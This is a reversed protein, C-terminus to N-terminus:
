ESPIVLRYRCGLLRPEDRDKELTEIVSGSLEGERGDESLMWEFPRQSAPDMPVPLDLIELSRPLAGGHHSSWDRISEIIRLIAIRQDLLVFYGMGSPWYSFDLCMGLLPEDKQSVRWSRLMANARPIALHPELSMSNELTHFEEILGWLYRIGVEADSMSKMSAVREPVIRHLNKRATETWADWLEMGEPTGWRPADNNQGQLWGFIESALEEWDEKSEFSDMRGLGPITRVWMQSEMQTTEAMNIFPRPINALDWYYNSAQPHQILEEIADLAMSAQAASVLRTVMLPTERVHRAMGWSYRIWEEAQPIDGEIISARGFAIMARVYSRTEQADPLLIGAWPEEQFPYNWGARSRNVFRRMENRDICQLGRIEAASLDELARDDYSNMSIQRLAQLRSTAESNMRLFIAAGEGEILEDSRPFFRNNRDPVEARPRLHLERTGIRTGPEMRTLGLTIPPNGAQGQVTSVLAQSLFWVFGLAVWYRSARHKRHANVIRSRDSSILSAAVWRTIIRILRNILVLDVRKSNQGNRFRGSRVHTGSAFLCGLCRRRSRVCSRADRQGAAIGGLQARQLRDTVPLHALLRQQMAEGVCRGICSAEWECTVHGCINATM